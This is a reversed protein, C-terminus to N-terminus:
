GIDYKNPSRLLNKKKKDMQKNIERLVETFQNYDEILVDDTGIVKNYKARSMAQSKLFVANAMLLAEEISNGVPIHAEDLSDTIMEYRALLPLYTIVPKRFIRVISAIRSGLSMTLGPPYPLILLLILGVKDLKSLTTILNIIDDDTCSGTLDIPNNVSAINKLRSDLSDLLLKREENNFNILKLNYKSSFDSALVGHGGSVTIITVKGNFDGSIFPKNKGTLLSFAKSYSIMEQETNCNIISFQKLAGELIKDNSGIAATHSSAARKGQQSKGGKMMIITKNSLRSKLLFERGRNKAFGELYFGIVDTNPDQELFYELMHVEDIVAKNGLSIAKSIAIERDFFKCFWQDAMIGGSQSVISVNGNSKPVVFREKPIINTNVHGPNFVGICNPGILPLDHERAIEALNEQYTIGARGAESFGGSIVVAGKIGIDILNKLAQVTHKARICLVGLDIKKPIDYVNKYLEHGEVTGGKPNVGFLKNSHFGKIHLNQQFIISGPNHINSTSVGVVAITDPYFIHSLDYSM